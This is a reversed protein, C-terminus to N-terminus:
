AMATAPCATKRHVYCCATAIVFCHGLRVHPPLVTCCRTSPTRDGARRWRPIPTSRVSATTPACDAKACPASCGGATKINSCPPTSTPTVASCPAILPGTSPSPAVGISISGGQGAARRRWTSSVTSNSCSRILCTTTPVFWPSRRPSRGVSAIWNWRVSRGVDTPSSSNRSFCAPEVTAGTCSRTRGSGIRRHSSGGWARRSRVVGRKSRAPAVSCCGNPM